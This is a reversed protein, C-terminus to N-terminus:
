KVSIKYCGGDKAFVEQLTDLTVVKDFSIAVEGEQLDASANKVGDVTSLLKEVYKRCGDCSMGEVKYNITQNM